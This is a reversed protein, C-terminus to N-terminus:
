HGVRDLLREMVFAAEPYGAGRVPIVPVKNTLSVVVDLDYAPVKYPGTVSSAANYATNIGQPTYAGHDHIMRGRIGRIKADADVAIEVDWYQDREQISSTFHERRDEIWKVPVGLLRAAAPIAVEEPYVLFKCGFGGGVDPTIVRLATEDLGLMDVVTQHLEHAM